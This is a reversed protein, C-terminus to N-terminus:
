TRPVLGRARDLARRAEPVLASDPFRLILAELREAAEAFRGRAFSVRALALLAAASSTATGLRAAVETWLREAVATDRASLAYQAAWLRVAAQAEGELGQALAALARSAGLTDGQAARLLGAGLTPMSDERVAMVLAVMGARDAARAPDGADAGVARLTAAGARLDGRYLAIWGRVEDGALSSDAAVVSAARDLAGARVFAFAIRRALRRADREPLRGRQDELLRAAADPAGEAATLEILTARAAAAIDEPTGAAEALARLLRRSSAGDEAEMYARAGEVRTQAAEAGHQGAALLELAEARARAAERGDLRSSGEAFHRLAELRAPGANALGARLMAWARRPENWELLLDVAIARGVAGAPGAGLVRLLAERDDPLVAQLSFVAADRMAPERAVATRWEEAARPFAAEHMEIQAMEAAGVTPDGLRARGRALVARAQSDGGEAILLRALERYPSPDRPAVAVWREFAATALTDERLARLSRLLVIHFTRNTSDVALARWALAAASDRRGAQAYTREAGLLAAVDTPAAWLMARYAEAAEAFRGAQELEMARALAEQASARGVAVAGACLAIM